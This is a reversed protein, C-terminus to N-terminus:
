IPGDVKYLVHKNLNQHLFKNQLNVHILFKLTAVHGAVIENTQKGM